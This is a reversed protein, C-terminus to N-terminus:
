AGILWNKFLTTKKRSIIIEEQTKVAFNVLLRNNFYVEASLVFKKNIIYQRNARFFFHTPLRKEIEDLTEEM